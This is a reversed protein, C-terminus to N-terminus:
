NRRLWYGDIRLLMAAVVEEGDQVGLREARQPGRQVREQEAGVM